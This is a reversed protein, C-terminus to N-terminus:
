ENFAMSITAPSTQYLFKNADLQLEKPSGDDYFQFAYVSQETTPTGTTGRKCKSLDLTVKYIFANYNGTNVVNTLNVSVDGSQGGSYVLKIGDSQDAYLSNKCNYTYLTEKSSNLIAIQSIFIQCDEAYSALPQFKVNVRMASWAASLTISENIDTGEGEFRMYGRRIGDIGADIDSSTPPTTVSPDVGAVVTFKEGKTWGEPMTGECTAVKGDVSLLTFTETKGGYSVYINDGLELQWACNMVTKGGDTSFLGQIARPQVANNSEGDACTFTLTVQQGPTYPSKLDDVNKDCATLIMSLCTAAYFFKKM